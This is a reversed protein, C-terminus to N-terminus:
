KAMYLIDTLKIKITHVPTESKLIIYSPYGSRAEYIQIRIYPIFIYNCVVDGRYIMNNTHDRYMVWFALSTNASNEMIFKKKQLQAKKVLAFICKKCIEPNYRSYQLPFNKNNNYIEMMMMREVANM